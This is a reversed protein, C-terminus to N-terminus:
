FGLVAVATAVVLGALLVVLAILGGLPRVPQVAGCGPCVPARRSLERGCALCRTRAGM